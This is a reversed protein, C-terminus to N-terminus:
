RKEFRAKIALSKNLMKIVAIADSDANLVSKRIRLLYLFQRKGSSIFCNNTTKSPVHINKLYNM